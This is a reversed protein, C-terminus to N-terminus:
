KRSGDIPGFLELVAKLLLRLAAIFALCLGLFAAIKIPYIPFPLLGNAIESIRWSKAALSWMQITLLWLFFALAALGLAQCALRGRRGMRATLIDVKIHGGDRTVQALGLFIMLVLGASSLEFAGPVAQDFVRTTLIDITGILAVGMTVAAALAVAGTVAVGMVKDFIELLARM